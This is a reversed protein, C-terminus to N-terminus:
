LNKAAWLAAQFRNPVGVKKFINYLHTKITFPSVCLKEAIEENSAGISLLAIVETERETLM